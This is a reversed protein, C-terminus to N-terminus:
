NLLEVKLAVLTGQSLYQAFCSICKYSAYTLVFAFAAALVASLITKLNEQVAAIHACVQCGEGICNHNSEYAIFAVSFMMAFIVTVALVLAVIRNRKTM